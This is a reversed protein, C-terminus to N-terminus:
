NEMMETNTSTIIITCNFYLYDICGDKRGDVIPSVHIAVGKNLQQDKVNSHERISQSQGFIM